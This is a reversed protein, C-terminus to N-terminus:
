GVGGQAVEVRLFQMLRALIQLDGSPAPTATRNGPWNKLHGSRYQKRVEGAQHM